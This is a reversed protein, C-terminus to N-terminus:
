QCPQSMQMASAHSPHRHSDRYRLWKGSCTEEDREVRLEGRLVADDRRGKDGLLSVGVGSDSVARERERERDRDGGRERERDKEGGREDGRGKEGRGSRPEHGEM